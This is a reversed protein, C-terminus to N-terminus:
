STYLEWLKQLTVHKATDEGVEQQGQEEAADAEDQEELEDGHRERRQHELAMDLCVLLPAVQLYLVLPCGELIDGGIEDGSDDVVLVGLEVVVAAEIPVGDATGVLEVLAVAADCASAARDGLLRSLVDESEM